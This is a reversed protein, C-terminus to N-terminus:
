STVSSTRNRKAIDRRMQSIMADPMEPCDDDYEDVVKDMDAIMQLEEKTLPGRDSRDMVVVSEGFDNVMTTKM